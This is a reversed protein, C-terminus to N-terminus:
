YWVWGFLFIIIIWQWWVYNVTVTITASHGASDIAIVRATGRSVGRINGNADVSIVSTDDSHWSRVNGASSNFNLQTRGRYRLTMREGQSFHPPIIPEIVTVTAPAVRGGDESVALIVARGPQLATVLGNQDVTAIEPHESSWTVNRNTATEPLVVATLQFTNGVEVRRQNPDGTISVSRVVTAPDRCIVTMFAQQGCVTTATIISTGYAIMRVRGNATVTAVSPNSSAWTINQYTANTPAIRAVLDIQYWLILTRTAEGDISISTVPIIDVTITVSAVHNGSMTTATITANGAAVAQVEGAANVLAVNPDSSAWVVAQNTANVPTVNASLQLVDGVILDHSAAGAITVGTAPVQVPPNTLLNLGAVQVSILSNATTGDGLQGHSNSGVTWVTGDNRMAVSHASGTAIAAVDDVGQMQVPSTRMITTGDGLQGNNNWGWGWVTGDARLAITHDGSAAIAIINELGPVQAPATSHYQWNGSTGNGLQGRSNHGWTWVTGDSRLAVSHANGAAVATVSSLNQVQVPATRNNAVGSAGDGIQGFVNFGWAWVTGDDAIALNHREGAAVVTANNINQVQVATHRATTTGDGLQGADNDGWAWVTGNDQLAVNHFSGTSIATIDTINITRVPAAFHFINGSGLQGIGNAGWAWVTGDARLGVSHHSGATVAIASDLNSYIVRVPTEHIPPRVGNFMGAGLIGAGNYGWTWTTGDDRVVVTHVRGAALVPTTVAAAMPQVALPLFALMSLVLAICLAKKCQKM